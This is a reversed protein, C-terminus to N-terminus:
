LQYGPKKALISLNPKIIPDYVQAKWDAADVEHMAISIADDTTNLHQKLVSAIAEALAQKDQATLDRPYYKLDVHPM